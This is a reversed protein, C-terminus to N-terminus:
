PRHHHGNELVPSYLLAEIEPFHNVAEDPDPNKSLGVAIRDFVEPRTVLESIGEDHREARLNHHGGRRQLGGSWPVNRPCAIRRTGGHRLLLKTGERRSASNERM